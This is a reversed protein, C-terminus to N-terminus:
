VLLKALSYDTSKDLRCFYQLKHFVCIELRYKQCDPRRNTTGHHRHTVYAVQDSRFWDFYTLLSARMWSHSSLDSNRLSSLTNTGSRATGCKSTSRRTRRLLPLGTIHHLAIITLTSGVEHISYITWNERRQRPDINWTDSDGYFTMACLLLLHVLNPRSGIMQETRNTPIHTHIMGPYLSSVLSHVSAAVTHVTSNSSERDHFDALFDIRSHGRAHANKYRYMSKPVESTVAALSKRLM